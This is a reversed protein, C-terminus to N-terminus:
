AWAPLPTRLATVTPPDSLIDTKDDNLPLGKTRHWLRLAREAEKSATIDHAVGIFGIDQPM